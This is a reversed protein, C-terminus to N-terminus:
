AEPGCSGPGAPSGCSGCPAPPEPSPVSTAAAVAFASVKRQVNTSRCVPCRARTRSTGRELTEFRHGCPVCTYDRLPM